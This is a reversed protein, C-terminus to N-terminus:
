GGDCSGGVVTGDAALLQDAEAILQEGIRIQEVPIRERRGGRLVLADKAQLSHFAENDRMVRSTATAELMKGLLVATIVVASTEFYLAGGSMMAYYSYGFAATTGVAVLVDMNGMRERIAYFAGFYFPMGIFFQVIAALVFQLLPEQLMLPVPIGRLWSYHHAMSWLLPFTLVAAVTFRLRLADLEKDTDNAAAQMIPMFALNDLENWLVPLQLSALRLASRQQNPQM